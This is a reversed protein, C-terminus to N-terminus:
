PEDYESLAVHQYNRVSGDAYTVSLNILFHELEFRYVLNTTDMTAGTRAEWRKIAEPRLEEMRQWDTTTMELEKVIPLTYSFDDVSLPHEETIFNCVATCDGDYLRSNKKSTMAAYRMTYTATVNTVDEGSIQFTLGESSFGDTPDPITVSYITDGKAFFTIRGYEGYESQYSNGNIVQEEMYLETSLCTADNLHAKYTLRYRTYTSDIFADYHDASLKLSVNDTKQVIGKLSKIPSYLNLTDLLEGRTIETNLSFEKNDLYYFIPTAIDAITVKTTTQSQGENVIERRGGCACLTILLSTFLIKKMNESDRQYFKGRIPKSRHM